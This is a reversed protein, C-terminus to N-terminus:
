VSNHTRGFEKLSGMSNMIFSSFGRLKDKCIILRSLLCGSDMGSGSGAKLLECLIISQKLPAPIKVSLINFISCSFLVSYISM